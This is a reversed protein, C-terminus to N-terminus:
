ILQLPRSAWVARYSHCLRASTGPKTNVTVKDALSIKARLPLLSLVSRRKAQGSRDAIGMLAV